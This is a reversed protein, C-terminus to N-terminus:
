VHVGVLIASPYQGTVATTWYVLRQCMLVYGVHSIELLKALCLTPSFPILYQGARMLTISPLGVLNSVVGAVCTLSNSGDSFGVNLCSDEGTGTSSTLILQVGPVFDRQVEAVM